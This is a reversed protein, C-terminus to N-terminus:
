WWADRWSMTVTRDVGSTGASSQQWTSTGPYLVPWETTASLGNATLSATRTACDIYNTSGTTILGSGTLTITSGQPSVTSYATPVTVAISALSWAANFTFKPSSPATGTNTVSVPTNVGSLVSVTATSTNLTTGYWRPDPALLQLQYQLYSSGGELSPQVSGALVVSAQRSTDDDRTVKLVGRGLVTSQFATAMTDWKSLVDSTSSGIIEGELTIKRSDLFRTDDLAGDRGPAIRTVMRPDPPGVIGEARTIQYATAGVDHLTVTSGVVPVFEIKKLM